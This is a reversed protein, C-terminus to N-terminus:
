EIEVSEEFIDVPCNSVSTEAPKRVINFASLAFKSACVDFSRDRWEAARM